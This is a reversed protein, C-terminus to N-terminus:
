LRFTGKSSRGGRAFERDVNQKLSRFQENSEFVERALERGLSAPDGGLRKAFAEAAKARSTAREAVNVEPM